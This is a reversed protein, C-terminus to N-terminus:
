RAGVARWLDHLAQAVKPYGDYATPKVLYATAGLERAQQMDAPNDSASFVIAPLNKLKERSRLWILVDFGSVDPMKLDLLILEPLPYAERDAFANDGALYKIVEAGNSVRQLDTEFKAKRLAHVLVLFDKEDDEAVLLTPVGNKM